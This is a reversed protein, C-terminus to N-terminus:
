QGPSAQAALPEIPSWLFGEGKKAVTGLGPFPSSHTGVVLAKGAAALDFIQRHSATAEQPLIDYDPRWAPHELHLLHTAVDAVCLLQEGRSSVSVLIHGPTHGPASIARIGPVIESEGELLNIRDRVTELSKRALLVFWKPVQDL